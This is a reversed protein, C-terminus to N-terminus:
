RNGQSKELVKKLFLRAEPGSVVPYGCFLAYKGVGGEQSGACMFSHLRLEQCGCAYDRLEM